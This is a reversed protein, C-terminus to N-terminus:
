SALLLALWVFVIHGALFILGAKALMSLMVQEAFQLGARM